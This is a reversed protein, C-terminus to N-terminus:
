KVEVIGMANPPVQLSNGEGVSEHMQVSVESDSFNAWVFHGPMLCTMVDGIRKGAINKSLAQTREHTTNPFVVTIFGRESEGPNDVHFLSLRGRAGAPPLLMRSPSGLLNMVVYGIRDDLNVWPTAIDLGISKDSRDWDSLGSRYDATGDQYHIAFEKHPEEVLIFSDVSKAGALASGPISNMIVVSEDPMSVFAEREGNPYRRMVWFCDESRECFTLAGEQSLGKGDVAVRYAGDWPLLMWASNTDEIHRVVAGPGWYFSRFSGANSYHTILNVDRKRHVGQLREQVDSARMPKPSPASFLRLLIIDAIRPTWAKGCVYPNDYQFGEPFDKWYSCAKKLSEEELASALPSSSTLAVYGHVLPSETWAHYRRWDNDSVYVAFKSGNLCQLIVQEYLDATHHTFAKPLPNGALHYLVAGQIMFRYTTFIYDVHFRGHNELSFDDHLNAGVVWDKIARGDDGLTEDELDAAVGLITYVYRKAAEDWTANHPHEPMMNVALALITSNWAVTEAETDNVVRAGPTRAAIRDAHFVVMEAVGERVDSDLSDWLFWAAGGMEGVWWSCQWQNAMDSKLKFQDVFEKVFGASERRCREKLEDPWESPIAALVAAGHAREAINRWHETGKNPFVGDEPTLVYRSAADMYLQIMEQDRKPLSRCREELAAFDIPRVYSVASMDEKMDNDESALAANAICVFSVIVVLHVRSMENRWSEELLTHGAFAPIPILCEQRNKKLAM